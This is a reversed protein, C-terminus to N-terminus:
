DTVILVESIIEGNTSVIKTIYTGTLLDLVVKNQEILNKTEILQGVNNYVMVEAIEFDNSGIISIMGNSPNPFVKPLDRKDKSNLRDIDKFETSNIGFSEFCSQGSFCFPDSYDSFDDDDCISRIIISFCPKSYASIDITLSNTTPFYTDQPGVIPECGCTTSNFAVEVRYFAAFPVPDWNFTVADNSINGCSINSPVACNNIEDDSEEVQFNDFGLLFNGGSIYEGYIVIVMPGDNSSGPALVKTVDFNHWLNDGSLIEDVIIDDTSEPLPPKGYVYDPGTPICDPSISTRPLAFVRLRLQDNPQPFSSIQTALKASFSINYSKGYEICSGVGTDYYIAGLTNNDGSDGVKLIGFNNGDAAPGYIGSSNTTLSLQPRARLCNWAPGACDYQFLYPSSNCHVDEFSGNEICSGFLFNTTLFFILVLIKNKM